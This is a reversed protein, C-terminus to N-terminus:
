RRVGERLLRYSETLSSAIWEWDAPGMSGRREDRYRMAEARLLASRALKENVVGYVEESVQAIREAYQQPAANERRMQWWDLELLAARHADFREGGRRLIIRYYQELAPLAQQAGARERSPQFKKAAVAAYYSLRVSDWPSFRYERRNVAYLSRFLAPYDHEYYHRWMATELRAVGAPDFERLAARRPLFVYLAAVLLVAILALAGLAAARGASRRKM